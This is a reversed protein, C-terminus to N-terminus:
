RLAGQDILPNLITLNWIKAKCKIVTSENSNVEAAKVRINEVESNRAMEGRGAFALVQYTFWKKSLVPAALLSFFDSIIPVGNKGYLDLIIVREIMDLEMLVKTTDRAARIAIGDRDVKPSIVLVLSELKLGECEGELGVCKKQLEKPARALDIPRYVMLEVNRIHVRRVPETRRWFNIFHIASHFRLTSSLAMTHCEQYIQRCVIPLAMRAKVTVVDSFVYKYIELRIEAPLKLFASPPGPPRLIQLPNRLPLTQSRLHTQFKILPSSFM